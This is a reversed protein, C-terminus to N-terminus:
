NIGSRAWKLGCAGPLDIASEPGEFISRLPVVNVGCGAVNEHRPATTVTRAEESEDGLLGPGKWSGEHSSGQAEIASRELLGAMSLKPGAGWM